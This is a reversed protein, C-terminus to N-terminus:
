LIIFLPNNGGQESISFLYIDSIFHITIIRVRFIRSSVMETKCGSNRRTIFRDIKNVHNTLKVNRGTGEIDVPLFNRM